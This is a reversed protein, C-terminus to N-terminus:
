GGYPFYMQYDVWETHKQHELINARQELQHHLTPNCESGSKVVHCCLNANWKRSTFDLRSHLVLLPITDTTITDTATITATTIITSHRYELACSSMVIIDDYV